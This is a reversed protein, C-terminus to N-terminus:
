GSEKDLERRIARVFDAVGAVGHTTLKNVIASGVIVADAHTAAARAAEPSGIGFGIAVPVDTVKKAAQVLAAIPQYDVTRVGTVGTSSICYIFGSAQQCIKAVRDATTTPAIFQILDIGAEDCDNKLLASEEYPLDPVIIGNIGAAGFSNIFKQQDFQMITNIYTMVALPIDSIQRIKQILQLVKATTIGGALAETAAKQIVPGDAIPDSFPIGIEVIDAGAEAMAKVAEATTDTDPYGAPLYVILGKRGQETLAKLRKTLKSM